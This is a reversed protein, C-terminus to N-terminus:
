SSIEDVQCSQCASVSALQAAAKPDTALSAVFPEFAELFTPLLGQGVTRATGMVSGLAARLLNFFSHDPYAQLM